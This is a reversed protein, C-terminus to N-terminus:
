RGPVSVVIRDLDPAFGNDNFLTLTNTGARLQVTVDMTGVANWDGTSPFRLSVPAGGNVSIEGRRPEAGNVYVLTVTAPGSRGAIGRFELTGFNQGINGVKTSGSCGDCGYTKTGSKSNAPSEAEYSTVTPPAPKPPPPPKPNATARAPPPQAPATSPVPLPPEAPGSEVTSPTPVVPPPGAASSTAPTPSGGPEAVLESHGRNRIAVVLALIVVVSVVSATGAWFVAGRRALLHGLARLRGAPLSVYSGVDDRV